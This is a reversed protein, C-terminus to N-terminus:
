TPFLLIKWILEFSCGLPTQVMRLPLIDNIM